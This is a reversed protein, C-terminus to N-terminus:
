REIGVSQLWGCTRQVQIELEAFTTTVDREPVVFAARDPAIRAGEAPYDGVWILKAPLKLPPGEWM